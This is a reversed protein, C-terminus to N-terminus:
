DVKNPWFRRRVGNGVHAMGGKREICSRDVVM